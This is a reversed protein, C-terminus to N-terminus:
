WMKDDDDDDDDDVNAAAAANQQLMEVTQVVTRWVVLKHKTLLTTPYLM